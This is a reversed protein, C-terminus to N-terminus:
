SEWHLNFLSNDGVPNELLSKNVYPFKPHQLLISSWYNSYISYLNM